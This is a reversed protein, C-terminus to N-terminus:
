ALVIDEFEAGDEFLLKLAEGHMIGHVYAQGLFQFTMSTDAVPRLILPVDSGLATVVVDGACVSDSGLGILGNKSRFLRRGICISIMNRSYWSSNYQTMRHVPGSGAELHPFDREADELSPVQGSADLAAFKGFWFKAKKILSTHEATDSGATLRCTQWLTHILWYHFMWESKFIESAPKKAITDAALTRWLADYGRSSPVRGLPSQLHDTALELIACLDSPQSHSSGLYPVATAEVTDIQLVSITLKNSGFAGRPPNWRHDGAPYWRSEKDGDGDGHPDGRLPSPRLRANWDPVWSPLDKTTRMSIDTTFYLFQLNKSEQVIAWAAETYVQATSKTYDPVLLADIMGLAAYILDRPDKAMCCRLITLMKWLSRDTQKEKRLDSICAIKTCNATLAHPNYRYGEQLGAAEFALYAINVDWDTFRVFKVGAILNRWSIEQRDYLVIVKRALVAEQLIWARSFWGRQMFSGFAAWQEPSIRPINLKRYTEDSNMHQSARLQHTWLQKLPVTSLLSCVKIAADADRDTPGLWVVVKSAACYIDGMIAVQASRETLDEQNICIADIWILSAEWYKSDRSSAAAKRLWLLKAVSDHHRTCGALTTMLKERLRLLVDHLNKHVKLSKGDCEIEHGCTEYEAAPANPGRWLPDGWTYSLANFSKRDDLNVTVISCRIRATSNEAPSFSLLRISRPSPLATYQYTDLKQKIKYSFHTRLVRPQVNNTAKPSTRKSTGPPAEPNRRVRLPAELARRQNPSEVPTKDQLNVTHNSM